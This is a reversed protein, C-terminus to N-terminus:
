RAADAQKQPDNWWGGGLAQFLAVTDAYRATHSQATTVAAQDEAATATLVPLVGTEGRAQQQQALRLSRDAAAQAAQAHRDTQADEVIAQLTDATNQLAVLVASRYQTKAQDLAAEAAKQKHRLAGADFVTAAVSGGISWLTNGHALLETLASSAGGASGTLTFDPLRAAMAVGVQASAVHLNAEAALVDPRQHVLDAPLSVPLDRPLTLDGLALRDTPAEAGARGTLVALLDRQQDIQKRLPPALQEATELTNRATAVDTTAAQGASQEQRTLDLTRRDAAIVRETADLQSQLGALQIAAGAVNTTLTLYVAETQYRQAAETAAASEIQRHLGGFVDPDYSLNLQGQYLTYVEANNALVPAITASNKSRLGNADLAVTPWLTARQALYLEHAQRLAAQASQLDPNAKLAQEELADLPPSSFLTWWRAAVAGGAMFQQGGAQAPLPQATYHDAAPPAPRHFNPGVTCAALLCPAAAIAALRGARPM